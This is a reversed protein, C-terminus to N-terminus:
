GISSRTCGFRPINECLLKGTCTPFRFNRPNLWIRLTIFTKIQDESVKGSLLYLHNGSVWTVSPLGKVESYQPNTPLAGGAIRDKDIVFLFLTEKKPGEFCVMSVPSAQWSLKAGGLVPTSELKRPLPFDSPAGRTALYDRVAAPNNTRIDMAYVRLVESVMRSQFGSYTRDEGPPRNLFFIVGVAILLSAAISAVVAIKKSMSFSPRVIKRSALIKAKLDAPPQITALRAHVTEHFKVQAELWKSLEPNSRALELAQEIEPDNGSDQGPRYTALISKAQEHTM